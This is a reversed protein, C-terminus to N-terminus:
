VVATSSNLLACNVARFEWRFIAFSSDGLMEFRGLAAHQIHTKNCKPFRRNYNSDIKQVEESCRESIVYHMVFRVFHLQTM